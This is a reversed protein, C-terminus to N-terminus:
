APRRRARRSLGSREARRRRTSTAIFAAGALLLLASGIAVPAVESVSGTAALKGWVTLGSVLAAPEGGITFVNVNVVDGLELDVTALASFFDDDADDTTAFLQGERDFDAGYVPGDLWVPEGLTGGARDVLFAAPGDPFGFVWLEGTTADYALAGWSQAPNGAEDNSYFWTFAGAPTVVGIWSGLVGDSLDACALIIEGNPLLAIGNCATITIEPDTPIIPVPDSIVGTNADVKYLVPNENQTELNLVVGTGYGHGDDNVDISTATAGTPSGVPTLTADAPNARALQVADPGVEVFNGDAVTIKQGPPLTAASAPASVVLTAFAIATTGALVGLARPLRM